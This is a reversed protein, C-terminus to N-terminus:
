AGFIFLSDALSILAGLYPIGGLLSIPITRLLIIRGLGIREGDSRVVKIGVTRKGITQGNRHLLVCNAVIVGIVILLGLVAVAPSRGVSGYGAMAGGVAAIVGDLIAAGLRQGRSAKRAELEAASYSGFDEVAAQPAAYPNNDM